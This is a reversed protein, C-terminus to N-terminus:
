LLTEEPWDSTSFLPMLNREILRKQNSAIPTHM